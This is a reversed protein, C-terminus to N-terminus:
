KNLIAQTKKNIFINSSYHLSLVIKEGYVIKTFSLKCLQMACITQLWNLRMFILGSYFNPPLKFLNERAAYLCLM